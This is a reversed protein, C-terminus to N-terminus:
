PGYTAPSRWPCYYPQPDYAHELRMWMGTGDALTVCPPPGDGVPGHLLLAIGPPLPETPLPSSLRAMAAFAELGQDEFAPTVQRRLWAVGTIGDRKMDRMLALLRGDRRPGSVEFDHESYLVIENKPAVGAWAAERSITSGLRLRVDGGAGFTAGLTTAVVAVALIATAVRRPRRKLQVIWATGLVALYVLLPLEYRVVHIPTLLLFLWGGLMGGLLEPAIRPRRAVAAEPAVGPEPRPGRLHAVASLVGIALFAFLPAFLLSNLTSWGYWALNTLSLRPPLTGAEANSVSAEALHGLDGAHLAYWPAGIAAAALAFAAIGRRNRWGQERVLVVAILGAVYIPFQPKITCGLGTAAGALAAPASRGFRESALVLWVAVAALAAQPADLMFVHFQEILLPSGLAFAVALLGARAGYGLKATQYCGLALLPVFVLNQAIVPPAVDIGGILEAVAGLLFILPPHIADVRFPGFLDGSALLDRYHLATGLHSGAETGPVGRDVVAWWCSTAVFASALAIAGWAAGSWRPLHLRTPAIARHSPRAPLLEAVSM